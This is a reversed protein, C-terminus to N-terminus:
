GGALVKAFYEELDDIYQDNKWGYGHWGTMSESLEVNRRALRGALQDFEQKELQLRDREAELEALSARLYEIELAGDLLTDSHDDGCTLLLKNLKRLKNVDYMVKELNLQHLGSM